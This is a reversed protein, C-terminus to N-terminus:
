SGGQACLRDPCVLISQLALFLESSEFRSPADPSSLDSRSAVVSPSPLCALELNPVPACIHAAAANPVAAVNVARVFTRAEAAVNQAQGAANQVQAV